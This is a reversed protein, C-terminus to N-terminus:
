TDLGIARSTNQRHNNIWFDPRAFICYCSSYVARGKWVDFACFWKYLKLRGTFRDVEKGPADAALFCPSKHAEHQMCSIILLYQDFSASYKQQMDGIDTAYHRLM